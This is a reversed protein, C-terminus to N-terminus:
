YLKFNGKPYNQIGKGAGAEKGMRFIDIISFDNLILYVDILSIVCLIAIIVYLM